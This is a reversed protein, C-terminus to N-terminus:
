CLFAHVMFYMQRTSLLHTNATYKPSIIHIFFSFDLMATIKMRTELLLNRRIDRLGM